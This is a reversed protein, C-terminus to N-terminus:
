CLSAEHERKSRTPASVKLAALSEASDVAECLADFQTTGVTVFVDSSAPAMRPARPSPLARLPVRRARPRNLARTAKRTGGRVLLYVYMSSKSRRDRLLRSCARRVILTELHPTKCQDM